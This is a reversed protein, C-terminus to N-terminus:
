HHAVSSTHVYRTSPRNSQFGDNGPGSPRTQPGFYGWCNLWRCDPPHGQEQSRHKLVATRKLVTSYRGSQGLWSVLYCM